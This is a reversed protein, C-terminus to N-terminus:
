EVRPGAVEGNLVYFDEQASIPVPISDRGSEGIHKGGEGALFFWRSLHTVEAQLLETLGPLFIASSESCDSAHDLSSSRKIERCM